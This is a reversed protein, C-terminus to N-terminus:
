SNEVMIATPWPTAKVKTRERVAAWSVIAFRRGSTVPEATHVYRHDSPFLILDGRAPKYRYNFMMFNIHGGEYDDNLYFLMSYDRDMEKKWIGQRSYFAESDAHPAYFGGESYFLLNPEEYWLLTEGFKERILTRFNSEVTNCAKKRWKGLKVERTVRDEDQKLDLQQSGRQPRAITLWRKPQKRAYLLLDNCYKDSVVNPAIHIGEPPERDPATSGCCDGFKKGNGCSCPEDASLKNAEVFEQVKRTIESM